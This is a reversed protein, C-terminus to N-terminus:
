KEKPAQAAELEAVRAKLKAIQDQLEVNQQVLEASQTALAGVQNGLLQTATVRQAPPLTQAHVGAALMLLTVCLCLKILNRM